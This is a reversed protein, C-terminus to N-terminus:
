LRLISVRRLADDCAIKLETLSANNVKVADLTGEHPVVVSPTELAPDVKARENTASKKKVM